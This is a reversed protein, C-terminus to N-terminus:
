VKAVFCIRHFGFGMVDARGHTPLEGTDKSSGLYKLIDNQTLKNFFSEINEKIIKRIHSKLDM